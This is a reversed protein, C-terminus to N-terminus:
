LCSAPIVAGMIDRFMRSFREEKSFEEIEQVIDNAEAQKEPVVNAALVEPTIKLLAGARTQWDNLREFATSYDKQQDDSLLLVPRKAIEQLDKDISSIRIEYLKSLWDKDWGSSAM